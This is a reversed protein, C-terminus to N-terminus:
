SEKRLCDLFLSAIKRQGEANPHIGDALNLEPVGAVGDLLFPLFRVEEEAALRPYGEDFAKRYDTGMNPPARMGALIITVDPHRARAKRIIGRLNGMTAEVPFGRLADNAGLAIVLYDMEQRLIWDVRRLGGASTDGSVGANVVTADRGAKRLMGELQAPWSQDPELGYGATLSDGLCVIRQGAALIPLLIILLMSFRFQNPM